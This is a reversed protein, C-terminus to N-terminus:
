VVLASFHLTRDVAMKTRDNPANLTNVLYWALTSIRVNSLCLARKMQCDKLMLFGPLPTVALDLIASCTHSLCYANLPEVGPPDVSFIPPFLLEFVSYVALPVTVYEALWAYIDLTQRGSMPRELTTLRKSVLGAFEVQNHNSISTLRFTTTNLIFLSVPLRIVLVFTM